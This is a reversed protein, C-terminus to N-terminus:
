RPTFANRVAAVLAFLFMTAIAYGLLLPAWEGATSAVPGAESMMENVVGFPPGVLVGILAAKKVSWENGKAAM